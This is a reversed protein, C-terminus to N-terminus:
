TGYARNLTQKHPNRQWALKALKNLRNNRQVDQKRLMVNGTPILSRNLEAISDMAKM